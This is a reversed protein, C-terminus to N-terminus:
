YRHGNMPYAVLDWPDPSCEAHELMWSLVGGLSYDAKTPRSGRDILSFPVHVAPLIVDRTMGGGLPFGHVSGFWIVFQGESLRAELVYNRGLLHQSRDMRPSEISWCLATISTPRHVVGREQAGFIVQLEPHDIRVSSDLEAEVYQRLDDLSAFPNGGSQLYKM